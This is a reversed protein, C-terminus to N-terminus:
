RSRFGRRAGTSVKPRRPLQARLGAHAHGAHGAFALPPDGAFVEATAVRFRGGGDNMWVQVPLEPLANFRSPAVILDPAGDGNLDAVALQKGDFMGFFFTNPDHDGLPIELMPIESVLATSLEGFVAPGADALAGDPSSLAADPAVTGSGGGCAVGAMVVAVASVFSRRM